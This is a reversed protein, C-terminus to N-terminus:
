MIQGIVVSIETKEGKEKPEKGKEDRKRKGDKGIIM